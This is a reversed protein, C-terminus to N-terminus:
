AVAFTVSVVVRAAAVVVVGAATHAAFWGATVALQSTSPGRPSSRIPLLAEGLQAAVLELGCGAALLPRALALRLNFLFFEVAFPAYPLTHLFVHFRLTEHLGQALIKMFVYVILNTNTSDKTPLDFNDKEHYKKLFNQM